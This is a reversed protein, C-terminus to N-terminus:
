WILCRQPRYAEIMVRYTSCRVWDDTADLAALRRTASWNGGFPSRRRPASSGARPGGGPGGSATRNRDDNSGDQDSGEWM